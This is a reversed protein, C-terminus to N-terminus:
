VVIGWTFCLSLDNVFCRYMLGFAFWNSLDYLSLRLYLSFCRSRFWYFLRLRLRYWLFHDFGYRRNLSDGVTAVVRVLLVYVLMFASATGICYIANTTSSDSLSAWTTFQWTRVAIKGTLISPETVVGYCTISTPFACIVCPKALM